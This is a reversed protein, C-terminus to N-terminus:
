IFCWDEHWWLYRGYGLRLRGQCKRLINPVGAAGHVFGDENQPGGCMTVGGPFYHRVVIVGFVPLCPIPVVGVVM